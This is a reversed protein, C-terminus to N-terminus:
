CANHTNAIKDGALKGTYERENDPCLVQARSKYSHHPHMLHHSQSFNQQGRRGHQYYNGTIGKSCRGVFLGDGITQLGKARDAQNTIGARFFHSATARSSAATWTCTFLKIAFVARGAMAAAYQTSGLSSVARGPLRTQIRVAAIHAQQNLRRNIAQVGHRRFAGTSIARIFLDQVRDLM